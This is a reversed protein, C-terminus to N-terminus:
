HQFLCKQNLVLNKAGWGVEMLVVHCPKMCLFTYELRLDGDIKSDNQDVAAKEKSTTICFDVTVDYSIVRGSRMIVM